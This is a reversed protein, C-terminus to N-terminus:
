GDDAGAPAQEVIGERLVNENTMGRVVAGKTGSSCEGSDAGRGDSRSSKGTVLQALTRDVGTERRQGIEEARVPMNWRGVGLIEIQIQLLLHTLGCDELHTVDTRFSGPQEAETVDILWALRLDSGPVSGCRAGAGTPESRGITRDASEVAGIAHVEVYRPGETIEEINVLLFRRCRRRIMCQLGAQPRTPPM